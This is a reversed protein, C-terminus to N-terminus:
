RKSIRSLSTLFSLNLMLVIIVCVPDTVNPDAGSELLRICLHEYDMAHECAFMFVSKGTSSVNHIDADLNIVMELIQTHM